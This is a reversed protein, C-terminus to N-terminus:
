LHLQGAEVEVDRTLYARVQERAFAIGDSCRRCGDDIRNASAPLRFAKTSGATTSRSVVPRDSGPGDPGPQNLGSRHNVLHIGPSKSIALQCNQIRSNRIGAVM